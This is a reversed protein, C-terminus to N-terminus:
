DGLLAVECWDRGLLLTKTQQMTRQLWVAFALLKFAVQDLLASRNNVVIDVLGSHGCFWHTLHTNRIVGWGRM